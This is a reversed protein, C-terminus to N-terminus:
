RKSDLTQQIKDLEDASYEGHSLLRVISDAAIKGGSLLEISHLESTDVHLGSMGKVFKTMLKREHHSDDDSTMIVVRQEDTDGTVQHHKLVINESNMHLGNLTSILKERIGEPESALEQALLEKDKLAEKSVTLKTIKGDISIMIQADRNDGAAVTIEHLQKEPATTMALASITTAVGVLSLALALSTKNFLKM